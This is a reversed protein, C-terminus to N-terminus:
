LLSDWPPPLPLHQPQRPRLRQRRPKPRPQQHPQLLPPQASPQRRLQRQPQRQSRRQRWPLQPRRSQLWFLGRQWGPAPAPANVSASSVLLRPGTVGSESIVGFQCTTGNNVYVRCCQCCAQAAAGRCARLLDVHAVYLVDHCFCAVLRWGFTSAFHLAELLM